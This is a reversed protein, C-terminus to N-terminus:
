DGLALSLIGGSCTSSLGAIMSATGKADGLSDSATVGFTGGSVTSLSVSLTVSCDFRSVPPGTRLDVDGTLGARVTVTSLSFAGLVSVTVTYKTSVSMSGLTTDAGVGLSTKISRGSAPM